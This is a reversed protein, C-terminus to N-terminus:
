EIISIQNSIRSYQYISDSLFDEESVESSNVERVMERLKIPNIDAASVVIIEHISSPLIYLKDVGIRDALEALERTQFASYAGDMNNENTLIYMEKGSTDKNLVARLLSEREAEINDSDLANIEKLMMHLIFDTMENVIVPCMILTNKKAQELLEESTIKWQELLPYVVRTTMFGNEKSLIIYPIVALDLVREHPIAQLLKKNRDYNILKVRLRPQVWKYNQINEMISAINQKKHESIAIIETAIEKISKGRKYDEYFDELYISPTCETGKHLISIGQLERNIKMVCHVSVQYESGVRNKVENKVTEIFNEFDLILM